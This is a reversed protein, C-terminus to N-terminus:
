LGMGLNFELRGIGGNNGSTVCACGVSRTLIKIAKYIQNQYVIQRLSFGFHIFFNYLVSFANCKSLWRGTPELFAFHINFHFKQSEAKTIRYYVRTYEHREREREMKGIECYKNTTNGQEIQVMSM